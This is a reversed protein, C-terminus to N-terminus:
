DKEDAAKEGNLRKRVEHLVSLIVFALVTAIAAMRYYGAGCTVGIAGALWM